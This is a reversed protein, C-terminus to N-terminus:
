LTIYIVGFARAHRAAVNIGYSLGHRPLPLPMTSLSTIIFLWGSEHFRLLILSRRHCCHFHRRSAAHYPTFNHHTTACSTTHLLLPIVAYYLTIIDAIHRRIRWHGIFRLLLLLWTGRESKLAEGHPLRSARLTHVFAIASIASIIFGHRYGGLMAIYYNSVFLIPTDYYYPLHPTAIRGHDM